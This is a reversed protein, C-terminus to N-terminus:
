PVNLDSLNPMRNSEMDDAIKNEVGDGLPHTIDYLWGGFSDGVSWSSFRYALNTDAAPNVADVVAAANETIRDAIDGGFNGAADTLLKLGLYVRYVIYSGILVLTFIMVLKTTALLSEASSLNM